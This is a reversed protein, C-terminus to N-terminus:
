MSFLKELESRMGFVYPENEKYWIIIQLDNMKSYFNHINTFLEERLESEDRLYYESDNKIGNYKYHNILVTVIDEEKLLTQIRSETLINIMDERDEILATLLDDYNMMDDLTDGNGNNENPTKM